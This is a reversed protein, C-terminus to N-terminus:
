FACDTAVSDHIHVTCFQNADEQGLSMRATEVRLRTLRPPEYAPPHRSVDTEKRADMGRGHNHMDSTPM